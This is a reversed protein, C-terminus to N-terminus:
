TDGSVEEPDTQEQAPGPNNTNSVDSTDLPLLEVENDLPLQILRENCIIIDSYAPNNEKERDLAHQVVYRHM